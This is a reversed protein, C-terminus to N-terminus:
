PVASLLEVLRDALHPPAAVTVESSPPGGNLDGVWAGAESAILAGASYDWPALGHEYFADVRGAAVWCLDLAASGLRRVDRVAPLVRTLLDAQWLRRDPTYSFGTAVLATALSPPGEVTLRRGNCTAGQGRVATFIEKRSPDHVVAVAVDGDVEAALSVSYMPFRYLYNTTGDLPDVFWRVGSGGAQRTGEEGVIGDDPRARGLQDVILAEAARDMETVM